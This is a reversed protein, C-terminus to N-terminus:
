GHAEAGQNALQDVSQAGQWAHTLFGSLAHRQLQEFTIAAATGTQGLGQALGHFADAMAALAARQGFVIQARLAGVRAAIVRQKAYDFPRHVNIRHLLGAETAAIEHELPVQRRQIAQPRFRDANRLQHRPYFLRPGKGFDDEGGVGCHFAFRRRVVDRLQEVVFAQDGRPNGVAHRQATLQLQDVAARQRM